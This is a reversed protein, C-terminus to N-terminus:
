EEEEEGTGRGRRTGGRGGGGRRMRRRRKKKKKKKEKEEIQPVDQCVFERWFPRIIRRHYVAKQKRKVLESNQSLLLFENM